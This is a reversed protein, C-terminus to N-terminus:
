LHAALFNKVINYEDETKCVIRDLLGAIAKYDDAAYEIVEEALSSAADEPTEVVTEDEATEGDGSGEPVDPTTTDTGDASENESDVVINEDSM